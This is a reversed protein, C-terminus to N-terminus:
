RIVHQSKREHCWQDVRIQICSTTRVDGALWFFFCVSLQVDDFWFGRTVAATAGIQFVIFCQNILCTAGKCDLPPLKLMSGGIAWLASCLSHGFIGIPRPCIRHKAAVIEQSTMRAGGRTLTPYTRVQGSRMADCSTKYIEWRMWDEGCDADEWRMLDWKM